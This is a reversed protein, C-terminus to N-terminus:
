AKQAELLDPGRGNAGALFDKVTLRQCVNQSNVDNNVTNKNKFRINQNFDIFSCRQNTEMRM